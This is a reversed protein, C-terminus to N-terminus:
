VELVKETRTKPIIIPEGGRRYLRIEINVHSYETGTASGRIIHDCNDAAGDAQLDDYRNALERIEAEAGLDLRSAIGNEIERAHRHRATHGFKWLTDTVKQPVSFSRLYGALGTHKVTLCGTVMMFVDASLMVSRNFEWSKKVIDDVPNGTFEAGTAIAYLFTPLLEGGIQNIIKETSLGASTWGFDGVRTSVGDICCDRIIHASENFCQASTTRVERNLINEVIDNTSKIEQSQFLKCAATNRTTTDWIFYGTTGIEGFWVGDANDVLVVSVVWCVVCVVAANCLLVCVCVNVSVCMMMMLLLVCEDDGKDVVGVGGCVVAAVVVCTYVCECECVTM